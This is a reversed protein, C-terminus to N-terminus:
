QRNSKSSPSHDQTPIENGGPNCNKEHCSQCIIVEINFQDMNVKASATGEDVGCIDCVYEM